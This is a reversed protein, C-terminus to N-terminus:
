QSWHLESHLVQTFVLELQREQTIPLYRKPLSHRLLQGALLWIALGLVELHSEQLLLQTVQEPVILLQREHLLENSSYRCFALQTALQALM